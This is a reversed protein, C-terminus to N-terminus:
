DIDKVKLKFNGTKTNDCLRVHIEYGDTRNIIVEGKDLLREIEKACLYVKVIRREDRNM